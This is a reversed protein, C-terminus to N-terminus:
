YDPDAEAERAERQFKDMLRRAKQLDLAPVSEPDPRPGRLKKQAVFCIARRRRKMMLCRGKLGRAFAIL